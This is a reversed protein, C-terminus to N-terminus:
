AAPGAPEGTCAPISGPGHGRAVDPGLNGRVRPSLGSHDTHREEGDVTGGYVRPYVRNSGTKSTASNPEGTCAPISRGVHKSRQIPPQNGRVRPSLGYSDKWQRRTVTTGGYVRPYVQDHEPEPVLSGPEGTCAPISGRLHGGAAGGLHNGRVRPSLGIPQVVEFAFVKTGGYVRPYVRITGIASPGSAPEGTCAPISGHTERNVAIRRPNGRVRPSLGATLTETSVTISTGGYVRPYVRWGFM